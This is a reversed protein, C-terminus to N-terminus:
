EHNKAEDIFSIVDDVVNPNAVSSKWLCGGIWGGSYTHISVEGAKLGLEQYDKFTVAIFFKRSVDIRFFGTIVPNIFGIGLRRAVEAAFEQLINHTIEPRVM